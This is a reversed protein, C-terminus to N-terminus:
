TRARDHAPEARPRVRLVRLGGPAVARGARVRRRRGRGGDPRARDRDPRLRGPRRGAEVRGPLLADIEDSARQQTSEITDQSVVRKGDQADEVYGKCGSSRTRSGSPRARRRAAQPGGRPRLLGLDVGGHVGDVGAARVPDHGQRGRHRPRLRGPDARRLPDAPRRPPGAGRRHLARRHLRRAGAGVQAGRPRSAPATAACRPARGPARLRRRRARARGRRADERVRARPDALAGRRARGDPGLARRFGREAADQPRASTTRRPEGPLRRAPGEQGRARRAAPQQARPRARAGRAHADVGPRTFRTAKRFERLLLWSGARRADGTAYPRWRSRTAAAADARRAPARACRRARDRRARAGLARRGGARAQRRPLRLPADRRLGRALPGRLQREARRVLGVASRPEDLLLASQADFVSDQM